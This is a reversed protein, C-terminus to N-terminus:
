AEMSCRQRYILVAAGVTGIIVLGWAFRLSWDTPPERLTSQLIAKQVDAESITRRAETLDVVIQKAEPPLARPASSESIAPPNLEDQTPINRKLQVQARAPAEGDLRVTSTVLNYTWRAWPDRLEVWGAGTPRKAVMEMTIRTPLWISTGNPRQFPRVSTATTRSLRKGDRYFESGMVLANREVDVFYKTEDRGQKFSYIQLTRGDSKREGEHNFQSAEAETTLAFAAMPFWNGLPQKGHSRTGAHGGASRTQMAPESGRYGGVARTEKKTVTTEKLNLGNPDPIRDSWTATGSQFDVEVQGSLPYKGFPENKREDLREYEGEYVFSAKGLREMQARIPTFADVALFCAATLSLAIM